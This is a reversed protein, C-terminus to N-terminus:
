SRTGRIHERMEARREEQILELERLQAGSLIPKLQSLMGSRMTEMEKRLARLKRLGPKAASGQDNELDIGYSSLIQRRAAAAARLVPEVQSAQEETLELRDLTQQIQDWAPAAQDDAALAHTNLLFLVLLAAATSRRHM